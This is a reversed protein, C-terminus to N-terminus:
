KSRAVDEIKSIISAHTISDSSMSEILHKAKSLSDKIASNTKGGVYVAGDALVTVKEESVKLYGWNIAVIDKEGNLDTIEIVGTSLLTILSSHNPLVGLEGESGPFQASKVDDSFISGKPTVIELWFKDKM